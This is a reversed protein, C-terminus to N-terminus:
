HFGSTPVYKQLVIASLQTLSGRLLSRVCTRHPKRELLSFRLLSVRFHIISNQLIVPLLYPFTVILRFNVTKTNILEAPSTAKPAAARQPSLDEFVM